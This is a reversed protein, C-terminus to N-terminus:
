PPAGHVPEGRSLCAATLIHAHTCSIMGNAPIVTLLVATFATLTLGRIKGALVNGSSWWEAPLDRFHFLTNEKTQIYYYNNHKLVCFHLSAGAFWLWNARRISFYLFFLPM